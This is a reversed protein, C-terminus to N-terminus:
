GLLKGSKKQAVQMAIADTLNFAVPAECLVHKNHELAQIAYTCHLDSPLCIDVLDIEDNELIENINTVPHIGLRTELEKLKEKKRGFVYITDVNDIKSFLETHYAGFGTGLIGVKMNERTHHKYFCFVM